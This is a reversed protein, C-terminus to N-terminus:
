GKRHVSHRRYLIVCIVVGSALFAFPVPGLADVSRQHFDTIGNVTPRESDYYITITDGASPVPRNYLPIEQGRFVDEGLKFEFHVRNGKAVETVIGMTM